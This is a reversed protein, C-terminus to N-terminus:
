KFENRLKQVSGLFREIVDEGSDFKDFTIQFVIKGKCEKKMLLVTGLSDRSMNASPLGTNAEPSVTHSRFHPRLPDEKVIKLESLPITYLPKPDTVDVYVFITADLVVIYRKFEGFSVYSREDLFRPLLKQFINKEAQESIVAANSEFM